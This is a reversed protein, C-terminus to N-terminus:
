RNGGMGTVGTTTTTTSAQQTIRSFVPLVKQLDQRGDDTLRINDGELRLHGTQELHTVRDRVTVGELPLGITRVERDIDDVRVNGRQARGLIVTDVLLPTIEKVYPQAM